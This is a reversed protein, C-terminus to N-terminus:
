ETGNFKWFQVNDISKTEIHLRKGSKLRKQGKKMKVGLSCKKNHGIVVGNCFTWLCEGNVCLPTNNEENVLYNEKWKWWQQKVNRPERLHVGLLGYELVLNSDSSACQILFLEEYRTEMRKISSATTKNSRCFWSCIGQFLKVEKELWTDANSTEELADIM